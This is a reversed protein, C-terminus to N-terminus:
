FALLPLPPDFSGEKDRRKEKAEAKLRLRESIDELDILDLLTLWLGM